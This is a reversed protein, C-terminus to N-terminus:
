PGGLNYRLRSLRGHLNKLGSPVADGLVYMGDTEALVWLSSSTVVGSKGIAQGVLGTGVYGAGHSPEPVADTEHLARGVLGMATFDHAVGVAAHRSLKAKQEKAEALWKDLTDEDLADAHHEFLYLDEPAVGLATRDPGVRRIDVVAFDERLMELDPSLTLYEDKEIHQLVVRELWLTPDTPYRLALRVKPDYPTTTPNVPEELSGAVLTM